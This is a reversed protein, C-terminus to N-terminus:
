RPVPLTVVQAPAGTVIAPLDVKGLPYPLATAPLSLMWAMALIGLAILLKVSKVQVM